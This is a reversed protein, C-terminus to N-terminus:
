DEDKIAMRTSIVLRTYLRHFYRATNIPRSPIAVPAELSPGEGRYSSLKSFHLHGGDTWELAPTPWRPPPVEAHRRTDPTEGNCEIDTATRPTASDVLTPQQKAVLRHYTCQSIKYDRFDYNSQFYVIISQSSEVLMNGRIGPPIKGCFIKRTSPFLDRHTAGRRSQKLQWIILVRETNEPKTDNSLGALACAAIWAIFPKWIPIFRNFTWNFLGLSALRGYCYRRKPNCIDDSFTFEISARRDPTILQIM